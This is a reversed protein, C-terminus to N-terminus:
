VGVELLGFAAGQPDDCVASKGGDPLDFPGMAVGGHTRVSEMASAISEVRFFYLWHPHVEPRTEIGSVAGANAVEGDFAFCRYRGLKGFDREETLGWGFLTSYLVAADEARLTNLHHWVVDSAPEAVRSTLGVIAGGPDRLVITDGGDVPPGLRAAGLTVFRDAMSATGGLDGVQIQGLWHPRAGRAIAMEPLAVIDAGLGGLVADYFARASGVDTTRLVYRTFRASNM